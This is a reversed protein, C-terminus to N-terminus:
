EIGTLGLVKLINWWQRGFVYDTWKAGCEEKAIRFLDQRRRESSVLNCNKVARYLEGRDKRILNKNRLVNRYLFGKVKATDEFSAWESEGQFTVNDGHKRFRNLKEHLEIVEKGKLIQEIWFLWDGCYRMKRYEQCIGDLCGERRFLVMSANYVRNESLMFKEVYERSRFVHVDGDEKWRDFFEDYDQRPKGGGGIIVSGTMCLSADPHNELARVTKELFRKDASDDSEAIWVYKGKAALIGKEWQRFPSGSNRDNIIIERVHPNDKFSLLKERSGDTSCDDLLILEFDTFTQSLISAMREDLYKEYNYNPLIVSVSPAEGTGNEMAKKERNEDM